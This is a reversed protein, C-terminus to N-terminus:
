MRPRGPRLLFTGGVRGTWSVGSISSVATDNLLGLAGLKTPRAIGVSPVDVLTCLLGFGFRRYASNLDRGVSRHTGGTGEM